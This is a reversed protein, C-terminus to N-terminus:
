ENERFRPLDDHQNKRAMTCRGERWPTATLEPIYRMLHVFAVLSGEHPACGLVASCSDGRARTGLSTTGDQRRPEPPM